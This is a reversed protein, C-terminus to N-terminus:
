PNGAVQFTCSQTRKERNGSTLVFYSVHLRPRSLAVRRAVDGPPPWSPPHCGAGRAGPCLPPGCPLPQLNASRLFRSSCAPSARPTPHEGPSTSLASATLRTGLTPLSIFDLRAQLGTGHIIFPSVATSGLGTQHTRTHVCVYMGGGKPMSTHFPGRRPRVPAYITPGGRDSM